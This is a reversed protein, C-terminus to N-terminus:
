ASTVAAGRALRVAALAALVATAGASGLAWGPGAVDVLVGAAATGTAVGATTASALWSQAQLRRGPPVLQDLVGQQLIMGPALLSGFLALAVCLLPLASGFGVGLLVVPVLLVAFAAQVAACRQRETGPWRGAGYVLGGIVSGGAIAGLLLGILAASGLRREAVALLATDVVGMTASTAAVVVLLAAVGPRRLVAGGPPSTRGPTGPPGALELAAPAGMAQVAATRCYGLGGALVLGASVLLPLVAVGLLLTGSVILPGAIFLLELVVTDLAFAAQRTVPDPAVVTWVSRMAATFPPLLAGAATVLVLLLAVPQGAAEGVAVGTLAAAAGLSGLAVVRPQGISGMWRGLLPAGLATGVAFLASALGALGYSGRVQQVVVVVALPTM